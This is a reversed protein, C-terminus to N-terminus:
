IIRGATYASHAPTLSRMWLPTIKCCNRTNLISNKQRLHRAKSSTSLTVYPTSTTSGSAIDFASAIEAWEELYRLGKWEASNDVIFLEGGSTMAFYLHQIEKNRYFIRDRFGQTWNKQDWKRLACLHQLIAERRRVTCWSKAEVNCFAV